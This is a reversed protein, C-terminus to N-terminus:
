INRKAFNVDEYNKWVMYYGHDVLKDVVKQLEDGNLHSHEFEIRAIPVVELNLDLLIVADHGETDIQLYNIYELHGIARNLTTVNVEISNILEEKHGMKRLHNKHLSAHQSGYHAPNDHNDVFLTTKGNHDSIAMELIDVNRFDKYNEALIQCARPNPEILLLKYDLSEPMNEQCLKWVPDNDTSGKNAGVQVINM